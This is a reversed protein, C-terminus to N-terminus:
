PTAGPTATPGAAPRVTAATPTVPPEFPDRTEFVQFSEDPSLEAITTTTAVVRAAKAEAAAHRDTIRERVSLAAARRPLTAESDSRAGDHGFLSRGAFVTAVVVLVGFLAALRREEGNMAAFRAGLGGRTM